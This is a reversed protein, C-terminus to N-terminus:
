LLLIGGFPYQQFSRWHVYGAVCRFHLRFINTWECWSVRNAPVCVSVSFSFCDEAKSEMQIAEGPLWEWYIGPAATPSATPARSQTKTGNTSALARRRRGADVSHGNRSHVAKRQLRRNRRQIDYTADASADMEGSPYMLHAVSARQLVYPLGSSLGRWSSGSAAFGVCAVPSHIISSCPM